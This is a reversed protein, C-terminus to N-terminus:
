IIKIGIVMALLAGAYAFSYASLDLSLNSKRLLVGLAPTSTMGGAVACMCHEANRKAIYRSCLYGFLSPIVTLIIGYAFWKIDFAANLRIGAPIGSGVFFMALGFNRYLPLSNSMDMNKKIFKQTLLGVFISSFLIGGSAGLSFNIYPFKVSGIIYGLVVSIGLVILADIIMGYKFARDIMKELLNSKFYTGFSLNIINIGNEIAWNIGAMITATTAFGRHNAVKVSYIESELAAGATQDNQNPYAIIGAMQTGHGNADTFADEGDIFSVGGKVSVNGFKSIGTDLIAIKINKGKAGNKYVTELFTKKADVFTNTNVKKVSSNKQDSKEGALQKIFEAEDSITNESLMNYEYNKEVLEICNLNKITELQKVSM